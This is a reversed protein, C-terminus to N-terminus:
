DDFVGFLTRLNDRYDGIMKEFEDVLADYEMNSSYRCIYSFLQDPYENSRMWQAIETATFYYNGNPDGRVGLKLRTLVGKRYERLTKLWERRADRNVLTHKDPRPNLCAGDRLDFKIGQYYEPVDKTQAYKRFNGLRYRGPGVRLLHLPLFRSMIYVMNTAVTHYLRESDMVFTITNDPTITAFHKQYVVLHFDDNNRFLRINKGHIPKGDKPNRCTMMADICDQYSHIEYSM